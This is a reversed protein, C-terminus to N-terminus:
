RTLFTTITTRPVKTKRWIETPNYGEYHLTWLNSREALTLEKRAVKSVIAM